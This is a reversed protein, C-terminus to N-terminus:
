KFAKTLEVNFEHRQHILDIGYFELVSPLEDRPLAFPLQTSEYKGIKTLVVLCDTIQAALHGLESIVYNM